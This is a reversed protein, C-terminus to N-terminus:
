PSKEDNTLEIFFLLSWEATFNKLDDVTPSLIIGFDGLYPYPIARKEVWIEAKEFRQNELSLNLLKKHITHLTTKLTSSKKSKYPFSRTFKWFSHDFPLENLFERFRPDDHLLKLKNSESSTENFDRQIQILESLRQEFKLFCPIFFPVKESDVFKFWIRTDSLSPSPAFMAWQTSFGFYFLSSSIHYGLKSDRFEKLYPGSPLNFWIWFSFFFTLLYYFLYDLAFYSSKPTSLKYLKLRFIILRRNTGFFTVVEHIFYM